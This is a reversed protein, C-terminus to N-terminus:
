FKKSWQKKFAPDPVEGVEPKRSELGREYYEFPKGGAWRSGSEQPFLICRKPNMAVYYSGLLWFLLVFCLLYICLHTVIFCDAASCGLHTTRVRSKDVEPGGLVRAVRFAAVVEQCRSVYVGSFWRVGIGMSSGYGPARFGSSQWGSLM